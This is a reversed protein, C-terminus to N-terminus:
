YDDGGKLKNRKNRIAILTREPYKSHFEENSLIQLDEIEKKTWRKKAVGKMNKKKWTSNILYKQYKRDIYIMSNEYITKGIIQAKEGHITINYIDDRMNRNIKPKFNTLKYIYNCFSEKLLESKTTLSIFPQEENKKVGISGDGDIVGRWFDNESYELLPPALMNTKNKLPFGNQECWLIFDKNSCSLTYSHHNKKFNTNRYREGKVCNPLVNCIKDIIDEDILELSLNSIHDEKNNRRVSGDTGFLGFLYSYLKIDM